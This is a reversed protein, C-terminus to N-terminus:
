VIEGHTMRLLMTHEDAKWCQPLICSLVLKFLSLNMEGGPKVPSLGYNTLNMREPHTTLSFTMTSPCLLALNSVEHCDSLLLSFLLSLSLLLYLSLNPGSATELDM